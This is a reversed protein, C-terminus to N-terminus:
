VWWGPQSRRTVLRKKIEEIRNLYGTRVEERRAQEEATGGSPDSMSGLRENLFTAMAEVMKVESQVSAEGAVGPNAAIMGTLAMTSVIFYKLLSDFEITETELKDRSVIDNGSPASVDQCVKMVHVEAKHLVLLPPKNLHM